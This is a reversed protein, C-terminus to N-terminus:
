MGYRGKAAYIVDMKRCSPIYVYIIDSLTIKLRCEWSLERMTNSHHNYVQPELLVTETSTKM